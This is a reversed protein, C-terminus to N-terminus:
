SATVLPGRNSLEMDTVRGEAGVVVPADRRDRGGDWGGQERDGACGRPAAREGGGGAIWGDRRSGGRDPAEVRGAAAGGGAGRELRAALLRADGPGARAARDRAARGGGDVGHRGRGRASGERADADVRRPVDSRGGGGRGGAEGAGGGAREAREHQARAPLGRSGGVRGAASGHADSAGEFAGPRDLEGGDGADGAARPSGAAHGL